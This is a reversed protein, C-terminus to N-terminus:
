IGLCTAITKEWELVFTKRGERNHWWSDSHFYRDPSAVVRVEADPALRRYVRGARRTHYDSTVVLFRRIGRRRLETVVVHAEDMTSKAKNPLATFWERPYGQKEAFGIALESEYSGYFGEPGSVLIEPAFGLRALEAAKLIRNGSGDGALVVIIDAPAPQDV